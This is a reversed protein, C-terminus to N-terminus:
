VRDRYFTDGRAIHRSPRLVLDYRAMDGSAIKKLNESFILFFNRFQAERVAIYVAAFAWNRVLEEPGFM